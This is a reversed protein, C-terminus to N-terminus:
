GDSRFQSGNSESVRLSDNTDRKLVMTIQLFLHINIKLINNYTHDNNKYNTNRENM